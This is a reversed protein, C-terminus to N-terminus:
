ANAHADLNNRLGPDLYKTVGVYTSFNEANFAVPAMLVTQHIDDPGLPCTYILPVEDFALM